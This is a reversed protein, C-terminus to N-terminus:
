SWAKKVQVGKFYYNVIEEPKKGHEALYRAGWQSMGVGHGYGKGSVVLLGNEVALKSILSSRIQDNGLALRLAPASVAVDNIRVTMARGSPGQSVISATRIAGPDKGTVQRVAERVKASPFRVTWARNVPETILTGPDSVSTIYPAAEKRYELGEVASAATQGGSDAHFWGNIYDGGFTVVMGRTMAVSKRVNDNIKEPAYAQFEEVSTSADTGHAKVGGMQMKKLTFTRALIAQAALANVPWQPNMEAAVVGMVYDEMKINITKGTKNDHLSIAPETKLEQRPPAQPAQSQLGCGSM